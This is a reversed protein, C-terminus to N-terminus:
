TRAHQAESSRSVAVHGHMNLLSPGVVFQPPCIVLPHGGPPPLLVQTRLQDHVGFPECSQAAPLSDAAAADVPIARPCAPEELSPSDNGRGRRGAWRARPRASPVRAPPANMVDHVLPCATDDCRREFYFTPCISRLHLLHQVGNKWSTLPFRRRSSKISLQCPGKRTRHIVIDDPFALAAEEATTPPFQGTRLAQLLEPGQPRAALRQSPSGIRLCKKHRAGEDHIRKMWDVQGPCRVFIECVSCWFEAPTADEAPGEASVATPPAPTAEADARGDVVASMDLVPLSAALLADTGTALVKNLAERAASLTGFFAVGTVTRETGPRVCSLTCHVLNGQDPFSKAFVDLPTKPDVAPVVVAPMCAFPQAPRHVSGRADCATSCTTSAGTVLDTRLSYSRSRGDAYVTQLHSSATGSASVLVSRDDVESCEDHVLPFLPKDGPFSRRSPSGPAHTM